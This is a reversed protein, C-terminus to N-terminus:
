RALSIRSDTVTTFPRGDLWAEIVAPDQSIKGVIRYKSRALTSSQAAREKVVQWPESGSSHIFWVEEGDHWLFGVHTDLGVISLGAGGSRVLAVFDLIPLGHGAFMQRETTLTKIICQSAQQATLVRNLKIGGHALITAVFYGCAITGEQPGETTGNFDWRTGYWFPALTTMLSRTFAGEANALIEKREEPSKAHKCRGAWHRRLVEVSSRADFYTGFKEKAVQQDLLGNAIGPHLPAEMSSRQRWYFGLIATAGVLCAWTLFLLWPSVRRRENAPFTPPPCSAPM